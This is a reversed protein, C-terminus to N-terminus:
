FFLNGEMSVLGKDIESEDFNCFFFLLPNRIDSKKM